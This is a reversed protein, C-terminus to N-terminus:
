HSIEAIIEFDRNFIESTIIKDESGDDAGYFVQVGSECTNAVGEKSTAKERVEITHCTKEALVLKEYETM